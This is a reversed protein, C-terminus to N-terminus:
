GPNLGLPGVAEGGGRSGLPQKGTERDSTWSMRRYWIALETGSIVQLTAKNRMDILSVFSWVFRPHTRNRRALSAEIRVLIENKKKGNKM